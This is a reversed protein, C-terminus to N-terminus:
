SKRLTHILMFASQDRLFLRIKLASTQKHYEVNGLITLECKDFLSLRKDEWTNFNGIIGNQRM